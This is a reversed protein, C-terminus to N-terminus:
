RGSRRELVYLYDPSEPAYNGADRDWYYNTVSRTIKDVLGVPKYYKLIYKPAWKLVTPDAGEQRLWSLDVGVFVLWKPRAREVERIMQKQMMSALPQREVLSYMYIFGTASRRDAYFLIEPESGIIGVLDDKKSHAKIYKAIEIAEPFPNVSYMQRSNDVPTQVVLFSWMSSVAVCFAILFLASPIARAWASGTWRSVVQTVWSVAIGALLGAAPIFVVYYHLRFFLGPCVALFSFVTFGVIFALHKRARADFCMAVLGATAIVWLWVAPAVLKNGTYMLYKMGDPLSQESVYKSAYTFTWFWFSKFVGAAYLALCTVGFPLVIGLSLLGLGLVASKRGEKRERICNWATCLFAFVAFPAAHQKVLIAMGLMLGSWLYTIPQRTEAAKLMLLIGGLMFPAVFQTAHASTGQTGPLVTMLAYFAAAILGALRDVLRRGLIFVLVISISNAVLLGLHVGVITQGFIAMMLAYIAYIGPFKMNYAIKYPPVGQLMLQGMYAFEGEDRELPMTILRIRVAAAALLVIGLVIWHWNAAIRTEQVEPAPQRRSAEKPKPAM